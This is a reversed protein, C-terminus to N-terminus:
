ASAHTLHAQRTLAQLQEVRATLRATMTAPSALTRALTEDTEAIRDIMGLRAADTTEVLRGQGYGDRVTTPPVHRGASVDDIFRSYAADVRRQLSAGEADTMPTAPHGEGKFKGASIVHVDVGEQELQRTVSVREALIGIAGVSASPTAEIVSAGAAIWYAASAAMGAVSVVVPKRTRVQRMAAAAEPILRISGGPSDVVVAIAKITPDIMAATLQQQFRRTNTGFGLMSFISPGPMLVGILSLIALGSPASAPPAPVRESTLAAALGDRDIARKSFAQLLERCRCQSTSEWACLDASTLFRGTMAQLESISPTM